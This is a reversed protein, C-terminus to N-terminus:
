GYDWDIEFTFQQQDMARKTSASASTSASYPLPEHWRYAQPDLPAYADFYAASMPDPFYPEGMENAYLDSESPQSQSLQLYQDTPLPTNM